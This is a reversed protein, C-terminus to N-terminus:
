MGLKVRPNLTSVSYDKILTRYYHAEETKGRKTVGNLYIEAKKLLMSVAAQQNDNSLQGIDVIKQLANIRFRDMGWFQQSLQDEHGGYKKIQPQEVLLVPYKATIRLWLDYDECVPLKTDFLGVDEFVSRHIIITSPSMACLPLCHTFIWGGKKAYHKAPNVRVGNRIWLEETHCVKSEPNASLAVAQRSLKEPLWEDDSDLFALWHGTAHHIGLNRARSVGSNEQRYYNVVPFEKNVMVQTDDTSGDDIVTVETPLLTQSFVSLLARRLLDCRNFTPIVVSIKIFAGQKKFQLLLSQAMFSLPYPTGPM